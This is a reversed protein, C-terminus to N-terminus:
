FPNISLGKGTYRAVQRERDGTPVFRAGRQRDRDRLARTLERRHPREARGPPLHKARDHDLREHHAIGRFLLRVDAGDTISDDPNRYVGGHSIAIVVDVKEKDRLEAVAASTGATYVPPHELLWVLERAEGAAIAANRATMEDLAARYPVPADDRRWEISEPLSDPLKDM